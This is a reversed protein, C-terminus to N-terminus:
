DTNLVVQWMSLVCKCLQTNDVLQLQLFLLCSVALTSSHCVIHLGDQWNWTSGLDSCHSVLIVSNCVVCMACYNFIGNWTKYWYVVMRCHYIIIFTNSHHWDLRKWLPSLGFSQQKLHYHPYVKSCYVILQRWYSPCCVYEWSIITFLLM